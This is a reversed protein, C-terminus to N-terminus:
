FCSFRNLVPCATWWYRVKIRSQYHFSHYWVTTTMLNWESLRVSQTFFFMESWLSKYRDADVTLCIEILVIWYWPRLWKRLLILYLPEVHVAVTSNFISSFCVRCFPSSRTLLCCCLTCFYLRLIHGLLRWKCGVYFNEKNPLPSFFTTIKKQVSFQFCFRILFHCTSCELV